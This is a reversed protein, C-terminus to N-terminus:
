TRKSECVNIYILPKTAKDSCFKIIDKEQHQSPNMDRWTMIDYVNVGERVAESVCVHM